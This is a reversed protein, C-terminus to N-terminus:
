FVEGIIQPCLYSGTISWIGVLSSTLYTLISEGMLGCSFDMGPDQYWMGWKNKPSITNWLPSLVNFSGECIDGLFSLLKESVMPYFFNRQEQELDKFILKQFVKMATVYCFIFNFFFIFPILRFHRPYYTLDYIYFQLLPFLKYFNLM